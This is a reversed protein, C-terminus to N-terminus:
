RLGAKAFHTLNLEKQDYLWEQVGLTEEETLPKWINEHPAKINIPKNSPCLGSDSPSQAGLAFIVSLLPHLLALLVM